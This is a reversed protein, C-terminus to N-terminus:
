NPLGPSTSLYAQREDERTDLPFAGADGDVASIARCYM